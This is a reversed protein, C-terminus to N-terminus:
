GDENALAESTETRICGGLDIREVAHRLDSLGDHVLGLSGSGVNSLKADVLVADEVEGTDESVGVLCRLQAM